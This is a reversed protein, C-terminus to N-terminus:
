LFVKIVDIPTPGHRFNVVSFWNPVAHYGLWFLGIQIHITIYKKQLEAKKMWLNESMSVIVLFVLLKSIIFMIESFTAITSLFSFIQTCLYAIWTNIRNESMADSARIWHLYSYGKNM